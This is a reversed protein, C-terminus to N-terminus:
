SIFHCSYRRSVPIDPTGTDGPDPDPLNIFPVPDVEMDEKASSRSVTGVILSVVSLTFIEFAACRSEKEEGSEDTEQVDDLDIKLLEGEDGSGLRTAVSDDDGMVTDAFPDDGDGGNRVHTRVFRTGGVDEPKVDRVVSGDGKAKSRGRGGDDDDDGADTELEDSDSSATRLPPQSWGGHM